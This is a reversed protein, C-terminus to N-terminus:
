GRRVEAVAARVADIAERSFRRQVKRAVPLALRVVWEKPQSFKFVEFTVDDSARDWRVLFREEGRLGHSALTGYGFGFVRGDPGDEDVVYVVRCRNLTWLGFQRSVFVVDAGVDLVRPSLLEVWPLDFMRLGRVADCAAEFDSAGRGVPGVQRDTAFGDPAGRRSAGVEAYSFPEPPGSGPGLRPAPRRVHLYM